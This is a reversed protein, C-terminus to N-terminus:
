NQLLLQNVQSELRNLKNNVQVRYADISDIAEQHDQIQIELDGPRSSGLQNKLKAEIATVAKNVDKLTKEAMNLKASSKTNQDELEALSKLLTEIREAQKDVTQSLSKAQKELETQQNKLPAVTDKELKSLSTTLNKQQEVLTKQSNEQESFKKELTAQSKQQSSQSKTLSAVQDTNKKIAKRNTDYSVGWLKRIESDHKKLTEEITLGKEAASADAAILQNDLEQIRGQLENKLQQNQSWIMYGFISIAVFSLGWLVYVITFSPKKTTPQTVDSSTILNGQQPEDTSASAPKVKATEPIQRRPKVEDADLMMSPIEVDDDHKPM